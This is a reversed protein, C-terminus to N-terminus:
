GSPLLFLSARYRLYLFVISLLWPWAQGGQLLGFMLIASSILLFFAGSYKMKHQVHPKREHVFLYILIIAIAGVPLNILFIWRWSTYEALAGGLAPEAIASIGWVSSLWDQIKARERISYIDGALTNVTAMIAGASLALLGRFAILSYMNWSAACTASGILFLITGTILVPKRVYMNALKGYLPITVTQILLYVSFVWSFLAFGGLDGVIQPIATSVITNDM